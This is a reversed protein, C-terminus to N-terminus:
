DEIRQAIMHRIGSFMEEWRKYFLEIYDKYDPYESVKLAVAEKITRGGDQEINWDSTCVNDLDNVRVPVYM